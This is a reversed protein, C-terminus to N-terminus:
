NYFRNYKKNARRAQLIQNQGRIVGSVSISTNSNESNSSNSSISGLNHGRIANYLASQEMPRLIMENRNMMALNNDGSFGGSGLAFSGVGAFAGNVLALQSAILGPLLPVGLPGAAAAASTAITIANGSAVGRNIGNKASAIVQDMILGQLGAAAMQALSSIISSTFTDVIANGTAMSESIQSSLAKFSNGAAESFINSTAVSSM